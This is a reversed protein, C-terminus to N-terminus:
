LARGFKSLIMVRLHWIRSSRTTGLHEKPELYGLEVMFLGVWTNQHHGSISAWIQRSQTDAVTDTDFCEASPYWVANEIKGSCIPLLRAPVGNACIWMQWRAECPRWCRLNVYTHWFDVHVFLNTASYQMCSWKSIKDILQFSFLFIFSESKM